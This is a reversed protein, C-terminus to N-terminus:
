GAGFTTCGLAAASLETTFYAVGTPLRGLDGRALKGRLCRIFHQASVTLLDESSDALYMGIRPLPERLELLKLKGGQVCQSLVQMAVSTWVTVAEVRMALDLYLNMASCRTTREGPLANNSATRQDGDLDHLGPCANECFAIADDRGHVNL